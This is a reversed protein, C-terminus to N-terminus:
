LWSSFVGYKSLVACLDAQQVSGNREILRQVQEYLTPIHFIPYSAGCRLRFSEVLAHLTTPPPLLSPDIDIAATAWTVGDGGVSEKRGIEGLVDGGIPFRAVLQADSSLAIQDNEGTGSMGM